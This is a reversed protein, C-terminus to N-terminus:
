CDVCTAGMAQPDFGQPWRTPQDTVPKGQANTVRMPKSNYKAGQFNAGSLSAGTLDAGKLDAGALNADRLDAYSLDVRIPNELTCNESRWKNWQEVGRKLIKLHEENAMAQKTQRSVDCCTLRSEPWSERM